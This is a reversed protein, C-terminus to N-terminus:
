DKLDELSKVKHLTAKVEDVQKTLTHQIKPPFQQNTLADEYESVSAKEGRICEELVAEDDNGTVATKIDIWTRHLSGTVSGKEKPTENLDRIEKDLETAFRNRLVAQQKLFNKLQSSDADTMAKKYGAEADYNKELLQQLHNVIDEHSNEKAEELTTKM